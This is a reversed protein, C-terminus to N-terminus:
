RGLVGSRRLYAKRATLAFKVTTGEGLGSRIRLTGGVMRARERMGTMGFHATPPCAVLDPTMGTGDDSIFVAFCRRGFEILVRVETASSHKAANILAERSVAFCEDMVDSRLEASAGTRKLSFAFGHILSLQSGVTEIASPLDKLGEGPQRLQAVRDRGEVIVEEAIALAEDLSHRVQTGPPIQDAVAGFRLALGHVSQLLTDHLDRAIRHREGHREELRWRLQAAYHRLRLRQLFVLLAVLVLACFGYFWWTQYYAPAISFDLLAGTDSWVGDENAATVRFRYAGPMLNTYFAERRNGAEQWRSDVGELRYRFQVRGPVSLSTATFAIRVRNTLQPLQIKPGAEFREKDTEVFRISVHPAIPNTRLRSPDIMAIGKNTELWVIGEKDVQATPTPEAQLAIGPLGDRPDFLGFNARSGGTAMAERLALASIRVVGKSTNLWIWQGSRVIGSVGALPFDRLSDLSQFKGGINWAIGTEGGVLVDSDLANFSLVAGLRLGDAAFFHHRNRGDFSVIQNQAFGMWVTGNPSLDMATADGSEPTGPDWRAWRGNSFHHIGALQFGAWLGGMGDASEATLAANTLGEPLGAHASDGNTWHVLEGNIVFWLEGQRDALLHYIQGSFNAREQLSGDAWQYLNPGSAVWASGKADVAVSFLSGPNASISQLVAVNAHRFSDLGFNTGAWVNHERDEFLSGVQDSTLGMGNKYRASIDNEHLTADAGIATPDDVVFVGGVSHDTGWLRGERDFLLRAGDVSAGGSKPEPFTMDFHSASLGPFARVGHAHSTVWLTGDPARVMNTDPGVPAHTETFRHDNVRLFFIRKRGAVWVTGDPDVLVWGAHGGNFGLADGVIEWRGKEFRALGGEFSAWVVGSPSVAFSTVWGPPIGDALSFHKVEGNRILSVGGQYYGVWIDGNPAVKM